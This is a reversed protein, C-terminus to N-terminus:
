ELWLCTGLFVLQRGYRTRRIRDIVIVLVTVLSQARAGAAGSCHPLLQKRRGQVLENIYATPM